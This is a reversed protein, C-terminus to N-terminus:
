PVARIRYFNNTAPNPSNTLVLTGNANVPNTELAVWSLPSLNFCRDLAYNMGIIGNYTLQVSGGTLLQIQLANDSGTGALIAKPASISADTGDGLQGSM